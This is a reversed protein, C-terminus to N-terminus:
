GLLKSFPVVVDGDTTDIVVAVSNVHKVTGHVDGVSIKQGKKVLNRSHHSALLNAVMTKGGLGLAIAVATVAGAVILTVNATLITTDFGLQALAFIVGFTFIIGQAFVAVTSAYNFKVRELVNILADKLLRAGAVTVTLVIVAALVNPLYALLERIIDRMAALELVDAATMAFVIIVVWFVVSAAANIFNVRLNVQELTEKVTKNKNLKDVGAFELVKKTLNAALKAVLAGLVILAAAGLLKPLYLAVSDWFEASSDLIVDWVDNLGQNM